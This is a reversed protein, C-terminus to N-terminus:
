SISWSSQVAHRDMDLNTTECTPIGQSSESKVASQAPTHVTWHLAKTHTPMRAPLRSIVATNVM